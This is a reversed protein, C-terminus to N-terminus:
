DVSLSITRDTKTLLKPDVFYTNYSNSPIEVSGFRHYNKGDFSVVAIIYGPKDPNVILGIQAKQKFDILRLELTNLENCHTIRGGKVRNLSISICDRSYNYEWGLYISNNYFKKKLRFGPLKSDTFTLGFLVDPPNINEHSKKSFPKIFSFTFFHNVDMIHIRNLKEYLRFGTQNKKFTVHGM